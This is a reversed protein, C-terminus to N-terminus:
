SRGGCWIGYENKKCHNELGKIWCATPDNARVLICHSDICFSHALTSVYLGSCTVYNGFANRKGKRKQSKAVRM